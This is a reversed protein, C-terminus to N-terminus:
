FTLICLNPPNTIKNPVKKVASIRKRETNYYYQNFPKLFWGIPLMPRNVKQFVKKKLPLRMKVASKLVDNGM